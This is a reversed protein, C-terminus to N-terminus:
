ELRDGNTRVQQCPEQLIRSSFLTAITRDDHTRKGRLRAIM